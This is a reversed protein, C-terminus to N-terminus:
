TIKKINKTFILQTIWNDNTIQEQSMLTILSFELWHLIQSNVWQLSQIHIIKWLQRKISGSQYRTHRRGMQWCWIGQAHAQTSASRKLRSRCCNGHTRVAAWFAYHPGSHSRVRCLRQCVWSLGTTWTICCMVWLHYTWPSVDPSYDPSRVIDTNQRQM